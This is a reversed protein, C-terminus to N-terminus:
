PKFMHTPENSHIQHCLNLFHLEFFCSKLKIHLVKELDISTLKMCLQNILSELFQAHKIFKPNYTSALFNHQPHRDDLSMLKVRPSLIRHYIDACPQFRILRMALNFEVSSSSQDRSPIDCLHHIYDQTVTWPAAHRNMNCGLYTHQINEGWNHMDRSFSQLNEKCGPYALLTPPDLDKVLRNLGSANGKLILQDQKILGSFADSSLRQERLLEFVPHNEVLDYIPKAQTLLFAYNPHYSQPLTFNNKKISFFRLGLSGATALTLHSRYNM